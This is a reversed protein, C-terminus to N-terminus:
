QGHLRNRSPQEVEASVSSAVKTFLGSILSGARATPRRGASNAAGAGDPTLNPSRRDARTSSGTALIGGTRAVCAVDSSSTRPGSRRLLKTSAARPWIIEGRFDSKSEKGTNRLKERRLKDELKGEQDRNIYHDANVRRACWRRCQAGLQASM